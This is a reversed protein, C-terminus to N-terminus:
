AHPAGRAFGAFRLVSSLLATRRGVRDGLIGGIAGGVMMGLPGLALVTTFAGRPLSWERILAPIANGILQTDLGDLVIALATGVVLLKQYASSRGEDLLVGVDVTRM